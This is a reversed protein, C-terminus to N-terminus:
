YVALLLNRASVVIKKLNCKGTILSRNRQLLYIEMHTVFYSHEAFSLRGEWYSKQSGKIRIAKM